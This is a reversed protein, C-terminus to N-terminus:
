EDLRDELLERYKSEVIDAMLASTRNKEVWRRGRSGKQRALDPDRLLNLTAKAFAAEDWPLCFGAGSDAIVLAQEPQDNAIVPRGMAMYEILKTPSGQNLIFSPYIPSLCVASKEIYQWVENMAIKGVFRITDPNIQEKKIERHLMEEDEPDEGGGIFWLRAQPVEEIVKKFMRVVFDLRRKRHLTGVYVVIPGEPGPDAEGKFPITGLTLSGPISTMSDADIGLAAIDKKMQESQVFTHDAGPLLIRYLAFAMAHGRARYLLPYRAMGHRVIHLDAEAHPYALWFCFKRGYIRAALLSLIGAIYKDKVQVIDYNQSRVRGFIKFDNIFDSFHKRLRDLRTAGGRTPALFVKGNGFRVVGGPTEPREAQMIWDVTHGRRSFEEGFIAKAAPRFPPYKDSTVVMINLPVLNDNSESRM